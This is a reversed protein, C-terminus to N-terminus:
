CPTYLPLFCFCFLLTLLCSGTRHELCSLTSKQKWPLAPINKSFPNLFSCFYVLPVRKVESASVKSLTNESIYLL